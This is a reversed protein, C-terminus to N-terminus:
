GPSVNLDNDRQNMRKEMTSVASNLGETVDDTTPFKFQKQDIALKYLAVDGVHPRLVNEDEDMIKWGDKLKEVIIRRPLSTKDSVVVFAYRKTREALTLNGVEVTPLQLPSYLSLWANKVISKNQFMLKSRLNLQDSNDPPTEATLGHKEKDNIDKVHAENLSLCEARTPERLM